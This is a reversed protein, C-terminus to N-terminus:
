LEKKAEALLIPAYEDLLIKAYKPTITLEHAAEFYKETNNGIDELAKILSGVVILRGYHEIALNIADDPIVGWESRMALLDLIDKYPYDTWRDSNALLKTYYCSSRDLFPVPFLSDDLLSKLNYNDFSVFELKIATAKHEIITRVAYRDARIDRLYSFDKTVLKGLTVNTIQSRAAKYSAKNPCLFDIDISERYENIELAIRTGGGFIINNESLYETSFNDLASSIAQHHSLKYKSM